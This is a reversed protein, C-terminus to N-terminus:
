TVKGFESLCLKYPALKIRLNLIIGTTKQYEPENTLCGESKVM